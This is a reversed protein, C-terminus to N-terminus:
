KISWLNVTRIIKTVFAIEKKIPWEKKLVPTVNASKLCDPFTGNTIDHNIYVKLKDWSFQSQKLINIPIDGGSGNNKPNDHKVNKVDYEFQSSALYLAHLLGEFNKKPFPTWASTGNWYIELAVKNFDCKTM